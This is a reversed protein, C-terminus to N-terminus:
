KKLLLEARKQEKLLEKNLGDRMQERIKVLEAYNYMSAIKIEKDKLNQREYNYSDVVFILLARPLTRLKMQQPM